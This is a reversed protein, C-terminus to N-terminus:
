EKPGGNPYDVRITQIEYPHLPVKVVDGTVELPSGEPKEMMNTVTAGTAGPPVHFEATTDKGAWEYARFILGKADEAKKVATLVVDEQAVSAFSHEAPLPGPHTSTVVATLPYNYEWGHRVTMADKWTGAHPYLAYHFHQHGMDADPDPWKPSRLLTLRLLNGVADYGFKSENILSLGHQGDGLDAWRQAPVEFQAKEWSNNRTTARDITGYPIEYTAFNSTAALPMAAKLLIHSEHWDVDNEVEVYESALSINQVFKSNQFHSTVRITPYGAHEESLEVSDAHDITMPAVDLTGPDINWADYDRPNDKFFQLQNGCAGSAISEFNAHKDFLSTICGTNKDVTVRLRENELTLKGGESTSHVAPAQKAETTEGYVKIVKYGLAPVENVHVRAHIEGTQKNVSLIEAALATGRAADVFRAGAANALQIHVMVDGSRAWGLPNFVVVSQCEGEKKGAATDIHEAIAELSHSKIENTSWRVDAYDKQADRYIVAIGSGAALDHFQNFLVKKWDETIEDGPYRRGDLWALSAWKEANLTEESSERMSQKHLAQTTMVGRHYEFYLESKWTPIAVKGSVAPPPTYGKAISQYNWTPSDPAIEKEVDSFFPQAIGFQYKATVHSSDAWHFGQDLMARTPGGGHDGVGYLDMMNNLGPARERAVTMDHSMREPGLDRNAYDQPFYALVKSGDPSEWWFLKFPLQNTDNWTMKQTVFYDVGSKKYIQPLQWTYGFSDPNWGIRVDVGYHQQYWRKGVLLQRVLSEGDPINLDPEVWMGGVIEWRGEKIRKQIDANMDPYKDALWENYAAASQTYTYGPYEYMLQLATGFTRKVVDVTETWPWLWAADIHSNGTEHFTVTQLLPKVAELKEHADKLSADFKGQDHADLAKVDVAAVAANLTNMPGSDNPALSPILSQASIFEELLDKPNPRNEPFDIRFTAGGISKTDVTHLLKVAIVAKEGPKADDFLVIPELDDGMAVRRGNFYVIEPMPGNADAHFQFWIRAGTLDYGALTDPVQVTQRFWVADNPAKGDPKVAEWSSDDLNVAEGHALDGSHMRWGADPLEGLRNLRGFVASITGSGSSDRKFNLEISQGQVLNGDIESGDSKLTGEYRVHIRDITFVLKPEQFTTTTSQMGYDGQDLSDTTSSFSGDKEQVVHLALRLHQGGFNLTGIWDGVIPSEARALPSFVLLLIALIAFKGLARSTM